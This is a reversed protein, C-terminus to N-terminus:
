VACHRLLSRGCRLGCHVKRPMTIHMAAAAAAATAGDNQDKACSSALRACQVINYIVAEDLARQLQDQSHANTNETISAATLFRMLCAQLQPASQAPEATPEDEYVM